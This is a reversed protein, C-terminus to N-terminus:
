GPASGPPSDSRRTGFVTDRLDIVAQDLEAVADQISECARHGDLLGLASQLALGASYLRRVVVDNLEAAIRDRDEILRWDPEASGPATAAVPDHGPGAIAATAESGGGPRSTEHM